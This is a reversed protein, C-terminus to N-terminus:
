AELHVWCDLVTWLHAPVWIQEQDAQATHGSSDPEVHRRAALLFLGWGQGWARAAEEQEHGGSRPELVQGGPSLARPRAARGTSGTFYVPTLLLSVYTPLLQRL